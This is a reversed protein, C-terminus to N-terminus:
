TASCRVGRADHPRNPWAIGSASLMYVGLRQALCVGLLSWIALMSPEAIVTGQISLDSSFYVSRQSNPDTQSLYFGTGPANPSVVFRLLANEGAGLAFDWGLAMSVDDM